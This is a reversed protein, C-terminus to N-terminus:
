LLDGGLILVSLIRKNEREGKTGEEREYYPTSISIVIGEITTMLSIIILFISSISSSTAAASSSKTSPHVHLGELWGGKGIGFHALETEAWKEYM